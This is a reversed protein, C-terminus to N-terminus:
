FGLMLHNNMNLIKNKPRAFIDPHFHLRFLDGPSKKVCNETTKLSFFNQGLNEFDL